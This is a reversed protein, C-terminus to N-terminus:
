EKVIDNYLVYINTGYILVDDITIDIEPFALFILQFLRSKEHKGEVIILNRNRKRPIELNYENM